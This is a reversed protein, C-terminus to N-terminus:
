RTGGVIGTVLLAIIMLVVSLEILTFAKLSSKRNQATTSIPLLTNKFM